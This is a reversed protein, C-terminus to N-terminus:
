GRMVQPPERSIKEVWRPELVEEVLQDGFDLIFSVGFAEGEVGDGELLGELLAEEEFEM